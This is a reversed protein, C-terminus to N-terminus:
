KTTVKAQFNITNSIIASYLLSASESTITTKNNHFKEAILTAASGVLEIQTKANFFKHAEHIKRHDIIEIVKTPDIKWSIGSTDSAEVLIIDKVKGIIKEANKLPLIKFTKFVFQAERSPTGFVAAVVNKGNKQLYETYAFTCATGDLDPNKYSTILINETMIYIM